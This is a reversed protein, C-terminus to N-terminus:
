SGGSAQQKEQMEEPQSLKNKEYWRNPNQKLRGIMQPLTDRLTHWPEWGLKKRARSVDVPYHADALDVMWPKIFTKQDGAIKERAWAGAKAFLKPVRITPWEEGHVLEGISEQLEEYSMLDAEAILFVELDDLQDRHDLVRTFVETLDEIHVFPQGHNADGPFFYSELQKEYIRSIQQAIPISHCDEDYVGAIRLIVAKMGGREDRIVQEAELKSQPYDWAADVPSTESIMENEEAAKMVLMSSAFVFQQVEFERLERLLRRTGEVTLEKYLPSPDGSFDYYAALHFVSTVHDGYKEKITEFCHRVSDDNTLDVQVFGSEGEKREPPKQDVGIVQYKKELEEVLKSGILGSSGTVIISEQKLATGKKM